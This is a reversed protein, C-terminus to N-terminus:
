TRVKDGTRQMIERCTIEERQLEAEKETFHPVENVRNTLLPCSGAGETSAWTSGMAGDWRPSREVLLIM